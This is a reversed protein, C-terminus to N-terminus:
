KVGFIAHVPFSLALLGTTTKLFDWEFYQALYYSGGITAALDAIAVGLIKYSHVGTGPAGFIDRYQSLSMKRLIDASIKRFYFPTQFTYLWQLLFLLRMSVPSGLLIRRDPLFRLVFLTPLPLALQTLGHFIEIFNILKFLRLVELAIFCM